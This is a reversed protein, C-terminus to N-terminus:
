AMVATGPFPIVSAIRSANVIRDGIAQSVRCLEDMEPIHYGAHADGSPLAHNTLIRLAIPNVGLAGGVSIFSRRLDHPSWEIGSERKVWAIAKSPNGMRVIEGNKMSVAPFVIVPDEAM